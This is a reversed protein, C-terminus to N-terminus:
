GKTVVPKDQPGGEKAEWEKIFTEYASKFEELSVGEVLKRMVGAAELEGALRAHAASSVYEPGRKGGGAVIPTAAAPVGSEVDSRIPRNKNVKVIFQMGEKSMAWNIFVLAANRHPTDKIIGMGSVLEVLPTDPFVVLKVPAGAELAGALGTSSTGLGAEGRGIATSADVPNPFLQPDQKAYINWVHEITLTKGVYGHRSWISGIDQTTKPDVWSIKGKYKPNTAYEAWSKPIDAEPIVSTNVSIHSPWASYRSALYNKEPSMFWPDLLWVSEPEQLSPLKVDKLNMFFGEREVNGPWPQAGEYIDATPRGAKTEEKIRQFSPSGAAAVFEVSIGYKKKFEEAILTGEPGSLLRGYITVNGEQKGADVIKQWEADASAAAGAAPAQPAAAQAPKEASKEAAPAKPAPATTPPPAAPAACAAVLMTLSTLSAFARGLRM